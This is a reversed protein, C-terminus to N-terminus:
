HFDIRAVLDYRPRLQQFMAMLSRHSYSVSGAGDFFRLLRGPFFDFLVYL